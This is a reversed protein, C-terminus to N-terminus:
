IKLQNKRYILSIIKNNQIYVKFILDDPAYFREQFKCSLEKLFESSFNDKLIQIQNLNKSFVHSQLENRLELSLTRLLGEGRQFEATEEGHVYQLYRMIKMQLEKGVNRVKM